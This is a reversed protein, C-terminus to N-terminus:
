IVQVNVIITSDNITYVIKKQKTDYKRIYKCRKLYEQMTLKSKKVFVKSEEILDDYTYMDSRINVAFRLIVPHQMNTNRTSEKANMPTEYLILPVKVLNSGTIEYAEQKEFVGYLYITNEFHYRCLMEEEGILDELPNITDDSNNETLKNETFNM